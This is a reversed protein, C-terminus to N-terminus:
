RQENRLLEALEEDPDNQALARLRLSRALLGVRLEHDEATLAAQMLRLKRIGSEILMSGASRLEPPLGIIRDGEEDWFREIGHFLVGFKTLMWHLPERPGRVDPDPYKKRLEANAEDVATEAHGHVEVSERIAEQAITPDSKIAEVIEARIEEPRDRLITRAGRLNRGENGGLGQADAYADAFRPREMLDQYSRGVREYIAVSPQALGIAEGIRHQTWGRGRLAVVRDAIRWKWASADREAREALGIATRAEDVLEEDSKTAFPDIQSPAM